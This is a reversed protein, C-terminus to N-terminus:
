HDGKEMRELSSTSRKRKGRREGRPSRHYKTRNTATTTATQKKTQKSTNLVSSMCCCRIHISLYISLYISLCLSLYLRHVPWFLHCLSWCTYCTFSCCVLLSLLCFGFVIIWRANQRSLPIPDPSTKCLIIRSTQPIVYGIGFTPFQYRAPQTRDSVPGPWEQVGAQKWVLRAQGFGSWAM